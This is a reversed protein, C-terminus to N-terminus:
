LVRLEREGDRLVIDAFAARGHGHRFISVAIFWAGVIRAPVTGVAARYDDAVTRREEHWRGLGAAGSRVVWHTERAAWTPLPCTYHTGVPLAASWYWTLDQGNEFELALSMYDHAIPTDEAVAAPLEDVRWRWALTTAPGLPFDIPKQLIGVSNATDVHMAPRGDAEGGRFCETPGLFWLHRWGAPPEIADRWRALESVLLPDGALSADSALLAALGERADGRWRIVLADIAGSSGAYAEVPTALDGDPSAWEGNYIALELEGDHAARLSTTDRTGNFIPGRGGIRGWLAFSPPMWLDLEPSLVLRGSALVSVWEGRRLTVGTPTWPPVNGPLSVLRMETVHRAREARPLRELTALTSGADPSV